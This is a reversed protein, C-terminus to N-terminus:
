LGASDPLILKRRALARQVLTDEWLTKMDNRCEAMTITAFDADVLGPGPQRANPDVVDHWCRVAFEKKTTTSGGQSASTPNVVPAEFPTATMPLSTQLPEAGAGLWRQLDAELSRLPALRIM